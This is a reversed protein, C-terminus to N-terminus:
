KYADFSFNISYETDSLYRIEADLLIYRQVSPCWVSVQAHPSSSNNEISENWKNILEQMKHTLTDEDSESLEICDILSMVTMTEQSLIYDREERDQGYQFTATM